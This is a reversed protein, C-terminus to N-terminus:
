AAILIKGIRDLSTTVSSTGYDCKSECLIDQKPIPKTGRTTATMIAATAVTSACFLPSHPVPFPSRPGPFPSHPIPFPSHIALASFNSESLPSESVRLCPSSESFDGLRWFEWDRLLSLLIFEERVERVERSIIEAM